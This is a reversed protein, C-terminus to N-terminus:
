FKIGEHAPLHLTLGVPHQHVEEGGHAPREEDVDGLEELDGVDIDALVESPAVTAM